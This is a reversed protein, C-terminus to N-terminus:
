WQDVFRTTCARINKSSRFVILTALTMFFFPVVLVKKRSAEGALGGDGGGMGGDVMEVDAVDPKPQYAAPSMMDEGQLEQLSFM